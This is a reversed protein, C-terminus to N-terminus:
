LNAISENREIKFNDVHRLWIGNNPFGEITFGQITVGAVDPDGPNAPEVIIGHRQGPGPLIRVKVKPLRSKALLRLPKTIRVAATGAHTETYDGPMVVISDGPSAADVAEQISQGPTVRHSAAPAATPTCVVAFGLVAITGISVRGQKVRM